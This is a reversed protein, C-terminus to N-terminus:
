ENENYRMIYKDNHPPYFKVCYTYKRKTNNAQNIYEMEGALFVFITGAQYGEWYEKSVPVAGYFFTTNGLGKTLYKNVPDSDPIFQPREKLPNTLLTNDYYIMTRDVLVKAPYEGMNTVIYSIVPPKNPEFSILKFDQAQLFPMNQIQFSSDASEITTRTLSLAERAFYISILTGLLLGANIFIGTMQIKDARDWKDKVKAPKSNAINQKNAEITPSHPPKGSTNDDGKPVPIQGSATQNSEAEGQQTKNDGKKEEM